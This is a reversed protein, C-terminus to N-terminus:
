LDVQPIDITVTLNIKNASKKGLFPVLYYRNYDVIFNWVYHKHQELRTIQALFLLQRIQQQLRM